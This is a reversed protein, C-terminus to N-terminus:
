CAEIRRAQEECKSTPKLTGSAQLAFETWLVAQPHREIQYNGKKDIYKCFVDVLHIGLCVHAGM